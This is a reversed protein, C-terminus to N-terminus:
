YFSYQNSMEAYRALLRKTEADWEKNFRVSEAVTGAAKCAHLYKATLQRLRASLNHLIGMVLEPSSHTLGDLEEAGVGAEITSLLQQEKTGWESYISVTGKLVEFMSRGPDGERFIVSNQEFKVTNTSGDEGKKIKNLLM